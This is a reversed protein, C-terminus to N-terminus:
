GDGVFTIGQLHTAAHIAADPNAAIAFNVALDLGGDTRAQKARRAAEKALEYPSGFLLECGDINIVVTGRKTEEVLPSFAYAFDTLSLDPTVNESYICAFM